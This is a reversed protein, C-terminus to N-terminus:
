WWSLAVGYCHICIHNGYSYTKTPSILCVSIKDEKLEAKLMIKLQVQPPDSEPGLFVCAQM